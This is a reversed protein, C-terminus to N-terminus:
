APTTDTVAPAAHRDVILGDDILVQLTAPLDFMLDIGSAAAAADELQAGRAVAQLFAYVSAEIGEIVVRDGQRYVKLRAGAADLDITADPDADAQNARWIRDIPWRSEVLRLSPQLTLVLNPADQEPSGTLASRPLAPAPEARLAAKVAWELRAVDPLYVLERCPPFAALFDAFSEGYDALCPTTPVTERVYEHAAYAFFREDVLRCTVPYTAKLADILTFFAYNRYIRLGAQPDIGGGEILGLLEAEEHGRITSCMRSQVCDLTPM